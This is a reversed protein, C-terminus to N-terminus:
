LKVEKEMIQIMMTQILKGIKVIKKREALENPADNRAAAEVARKDAEENRTRASAQKM